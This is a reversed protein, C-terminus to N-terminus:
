AFRLNIEQVLTYVFGAMQQFMNFFLLLIYIIVAMGALTCVTILITKSLSYQHTVVNGLLLLLAFWLTGIYGIMQYFSAEELLMFNSLPLKLIQVIILPTLSFATAICIDKFTGEGDFLSTLCWNAVCWLLYIVVIMAVSKIISFEVGGNPNFIYGCYYGDAVYTIIYLFLLILASTLSGKNERKIDNFGKFPHVMIYTSYKLEALIKKFANEQKESSYNEKINSSM